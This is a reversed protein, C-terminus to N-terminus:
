DDDAGLLSRVLNAADMRVLHEMDMLQSDQYYTIPMADIADAILSVAVDVAAIVKGLTTRGGHDYAAHVAADILAAHTL